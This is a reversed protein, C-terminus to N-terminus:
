MQLESALRLTNFDRRVASRPAGTDWEVQLMGAGTGLRCDHRSRRVEGEAHCIELLDDGVLVSSCRRAKRRSVGCCRSSHNCCAFSGGDGVYTDTNGSTDVYTYNITSEIGGAALHFAVESM